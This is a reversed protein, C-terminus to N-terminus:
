NVYIFHITGNCDASSPLSDGGVTARIVISINTAAGIDESLLGPTYAYHKDVFSGSGFGSGTAFFVGDDYNTGDITLRISYDSDDSVDSPLKCQGDFIIQSIAKLSTVTGTVNITAITYTGPGDNPDTATGTFDFSEVLVGSSSGEILVKKVTGSNDKLKLDNDATDVYLSNNDGPETTPTLEVSKVKTNGDNDVEYNTGM